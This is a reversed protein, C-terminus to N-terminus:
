PQRSWKEALAAAHEREADTKSNIAYQRFVRAISERLRPESPDLTFGRAWTLAQPHLMDVFAAGTTASM